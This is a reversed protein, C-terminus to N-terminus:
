KNRCGFSELQPPLKAPLVDVDIAKTATVMDETDSVRLIFKHKGIQADTPTWTLLGELTENPEDPYVWTANAPGSPEFQLKFVQVENPDNIFTFNGEMTQGARMTHQYTPLEVVYIKWGLMLPVLSIWLLKKM